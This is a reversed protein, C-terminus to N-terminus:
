QANRSLKQKSLQHQNHCEIQQTNHDKNVRYSDFSIVDPGSQM